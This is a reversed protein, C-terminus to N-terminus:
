IFEEYLPKKIFEVLNEGRSVAIWLKMYVSIAGCMPLSIVNLEDLKKGSAYGKEGPKNTLFVPINREKARDCFAKFTKSETNITGCHFPQLIVAKTNELCYEFSNGPHCLINLIDSNECLEFTGLPANKESHKFDPNEQFKGHQYIGYPENMLSFVDDSAENHRLLRSSHHYYTIGDSNKYPVFVGKKGARIIEVAAAFNDHGNARSDMLEFNSAVLAAPLTDGLCFGVAAASYQLTDSGHTIIIGDYGKNANEKVCSILMNINEASINESLISYPEATDFIIDNNTHKNKYSELLLYGRESNPSIWGDSVASGITGGTFIVLIKM